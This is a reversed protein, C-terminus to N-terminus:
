FNVGWDRVIALLQGAAFGTGAGMVADNKSALTAAAGISAAGVKLGTRALRQTNLLNGGTTGGDVGFADPFQEIILGNFPKVGIFGAAVGITRMSKAREYGQKLKGINGGIGGSSRRRRAM